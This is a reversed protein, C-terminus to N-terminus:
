ELHKLISQLSDLNIETRRHRHDKFFADVIDSSRESEDSSYIQDLELKPLIKEIVIPSPVIEKQEVFTSLKKSRKRYKNRTRDPEFTSVEDFPSSSPPPRPRVQIKDFSDDIEKWIHWKEILSEDSRYFFGPRLPDLFDRKDFPPSCISNQQEDVTMYIVGTTESIRRGFRDLQYFIPSKRFFSNEPLNRYISGITEVLITAEQDNKTIFCHCEDAPVLETRQFVACFIPPHKSTQSDLPLFRWDVTSRQSDKVLTFRLAGCYILSSLPYFLAVFPHRVFTM